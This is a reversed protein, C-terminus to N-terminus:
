RMYLFLGLTYKKKMALLAAELFYSAPETHKLFCVSEVLHSKKCGRVRSMSSDTSLQVTLPRPCHWCQVCGEIAKLTKPM